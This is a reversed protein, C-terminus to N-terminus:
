SEDADGPEQLRLGGFARSPVVNKGIASPVLRRGGIWFALLEDLGEGKVAGGTKPSAAVLFVEIAAFCEGFLRRIEGVLRELAELGRDREDSSKVADLKTLVVALPVQNVLGNGDKLAQLMMKLESAMNHRDSSLLKEGDVLISVSDARGIEAFGEVMGIDDVASQYEEGSRDALLVAIAQNEQVLELHYFALTGVPTRVAHPADRRSEARADHSIEEFAHLTEGGSFRIPGVSGRQFLEYVGAILSTKGSETPGLVAIVRSDSIKLIRSASEYSLVTASPLEIAEEMGVPETEDQAETDETEEAIGFHLCDELKLGEFCQGTESVRCDTNSCSVDKQEIAGSM